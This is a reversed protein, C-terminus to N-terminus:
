SPENWLKQIHAAMTQNMEWLDGWPMGTSAEVQQYGDPGFEPTITAAPEGATKLVRLIELWWKCHAKLAPEYLPLGPDPVQAGQEYGVRAHLHRVRPACAQLIEPYEDLVLRECVVCWHSLDATLVLDPVQRLIELTIQPHFLSRGRHTECCIRVQYKAALECVRGFFEVCQSVPWLDNGAMTTFKRPKWPLAREIERELVELHTQPNACPDPVAYGTTSVEAIWELRASQVADMAREAEEAGRPLPGELGAFGASQAQRVAEDWPGRWGWLTRYFLLKM